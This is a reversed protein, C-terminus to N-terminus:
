WEVSFFNKILLSLIMCHANIKKMEKILICYYSEHQKTEM